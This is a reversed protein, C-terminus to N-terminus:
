YMMIEKPADETPRQQERRHTYAAHDYMYILIIAIISLVIYPIVLFFGVHMTASKNRFEAQIGGSFAQVLDEAMQTAFLNVVYLIILLVALCASLSSCAYMGVPGMYTEYPNSVSNYISILISCLSCLLCLALLGLVLGHLIVPAGGTEVLKPFVEFTDEGGFAPCVIRQVAAQFLRLQVVASGNAFPSGQRTCEMTTTAWDASMAYALIAVSVATVLASSLFHLIKTLSPM